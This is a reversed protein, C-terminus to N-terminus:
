NKKRKLMHKRYKWLKFCTQIPGSIVYGGFCFFLVYFPYATIGVFLLVVILTYLFPVSRKFDIEKFSYYRINSVMLLATLFIVIASPVAIFYGDIDNSICIWIFSAIFAGASTCSLGQFYRKDSIALQTNFRALRLAVAAAFTFSILWGIKGLFVLSWSFALLAPAIGFTVMDSLSDYQAGFETQTNTMRAVRGDLGDAVMGAFIAIIASEFQHQMSAVISYFAAFLSATTLLNPLLYIGKNSNTSSNLNM